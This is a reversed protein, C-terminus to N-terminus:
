GRENELAVGLIVLRRKPVIRQAAETEYRAPQPILDRLAQLVLGVFAGYLVWGTLEPFLGRMGAATWQPMRGGIIPFLIISISAWLPIGFASGAMLSDLYAYRTHRFVLEFVMGIIAALAIAVLTNDQTAILAPSSALGAALGIWSQRFYRKM